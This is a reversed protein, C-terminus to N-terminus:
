LWSLTDRIEAQSQSRADLSSEPANVMETARLFSTARDAAEDYSLGPLPVVKVARNQLLLAQSGWRNTNVVAVTGADSARLLESVDPLAM